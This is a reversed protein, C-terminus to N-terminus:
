MDRVETTAGRHGYDLEEDVDEVEDDSSETEDSEDVQDTEEREGERRAYEEAGFVRQDNSSETGETDDSAM